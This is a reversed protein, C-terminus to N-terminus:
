QDAGDVGPRIKLAKVLKEFSAEFADHDKWNTFDAALRSKIETVMYDNDAGKFIYGDVDLPLLLPEFEGNAKEHDEEKQLMTEFERKVWRSKFSHESCILIVKDHLRIAQNISDYVKDGIKMDKDDLWCRVGEGQLRDFIRKAFEKDSHSYSIFVSYMQIAGRFLPMIHEIYEDSFGVGQLFSDPIKGQSETLTHFDVYSPGLHIVEDLGKVESLDVGNFVTRQLRARSLVAGRLNAGRFDTSSLDARSLDADRLDAGRLSANVLNARSLIVSSLYSHSLDARSLNANDLDADTLVAVKLNADNLDVGRLYSGMLHAGRLDANVLNANQLSKDRVWDKKWMEGVARLAEENAGKRMQRILRQLEDYEPHEPNRRKFGEFQDGM